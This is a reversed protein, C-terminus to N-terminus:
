IADKESFYDDSGIFCVWDGTAHDLALNFADYIGKDPASAHWSILSSHTHLVDLTGDTSGGDKVLIEINKHTQTSLSKLTRAITLAGNLVAIVVSVKSKKLM